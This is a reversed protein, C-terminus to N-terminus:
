GTCKYTRGQEAFCKAVNKVGVPSYWTNETLVPPWKGTAEWIFRSDGLYEQVISM